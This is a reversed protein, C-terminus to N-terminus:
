GRAVDRLGGQRGADPAEFVLEPNREHPATSPEFTQRRFALPDQTPGLARQCVQLAEALFRAPEAAPQFPHQPDTRDGRRQRHRGSERGAEAFAMRAHPNSQYRHRRPLDGVPELVALEVGAHGVEVVLREGQDVRQRQPALPIQEDDRAVPLQACRLGNRPADSNGSHRSVGSM